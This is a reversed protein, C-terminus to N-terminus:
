SNLWEGFVQYLYEKIDNRNRGSISLTIGHILSPKVTITHETWGDYYGNENMHHYETTFVLKEGTSKDLDIATGSDIGAGSPATNEMINLITDTHRDYWETNGKEKCTLRADVAQALSQYIRKEM